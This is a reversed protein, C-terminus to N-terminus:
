PRLQHPIRVYGIWCDSLKVERHNALGAQYIERLRMNALTVPCTPYLILDTNRVAEITDADPNPVARTPDAGIPIRRTAHRDLLYPYPNVFNLAMITDFRVGERAEFAKIASVADDTALLWTMQFDIDAYLSYFPLLGVGAYAEYLSKNVRLIDLGERARDLLEPRQDVQGLIKLQPRDLDVYQMQGVLARSLRHAIGVFPPLAVAGILVLIPLRRAAPTEFIRLLLPWLFIFAQDGTNQSEFFIGCALLVGLWVIPQDFFTSLSMWDRRRVLESLGRRLANHEVIALGLLLACGSGFTGFHLSAAQLLRSALGGENLKVLSVIDGIYHSVLGTTLDLGALVAAFLAASVLAARLSIRGAALALLCILGATVFGTIKLLFLATCCWAVAFVILGARREFLLVTVLVYLLQAVHRNYFGYGDFSPFLGYQEVNLPVLQFFLFPLLLAWGLAPRLRLVTPLFPPLTIAFLMWQALLVPQPSPFLALGGAFLWYGLPGVPAFFDVSPIQGDLVRQGGDLYLVTDWNFPGLPLHLPLWLGLACAALVGLVLPLQGWQFLGGMASHPRGAIPHPLPPTPM